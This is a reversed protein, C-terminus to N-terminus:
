EYESSVNQLMLEMFMRSIYIHLARLTSTNIAPGGDSPKRPVIAAGFLGINDSSQKIPELIYNM